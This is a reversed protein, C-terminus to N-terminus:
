RGDEHTIYECVCVPRLVEPTLKRWAKAGTDVGPARLAVREGTVPEVATYLHTWERRQGAHGVLGDCWV